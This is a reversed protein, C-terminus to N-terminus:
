GYRGFGGFGFRNFGRYFLNVNYIQKFQGLAISDVMVVVLVSLM